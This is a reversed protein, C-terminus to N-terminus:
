AGFGSGTSVLAGALFGAFLLLTVLIVSGVALAVSVGIIFAIAEGRTRGGFWRLSARWILLNLAITFLIPAAFITSWVLTDTLEGPVLDDAGPNLVGLVILAITLAVSLGATIWIAVTLIRRGRDLWEPRAAPRPATPHAAQTQAVAEMGDAPGYPSVPPPVSVDAKPAAPEPTDTM